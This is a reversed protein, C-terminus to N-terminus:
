AANPVAATMDDGLLHRSGRSRNERGPQRARRSRRPSLSHGARGALQRDREHCLLLAASREEDIISCAVVDRHM